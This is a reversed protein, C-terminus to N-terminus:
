WCGKLNERLKETDEQIALWKGDGFLSKSEAAVQRWVVWYMNRKLTVEKERKAAQQRLLDVEKRKEKAELWNKSSTNPIKKPSSSPTEGFGNVLEAGNEGRCVEVIRRWQDHGSMTNQDGIITLGQKARSIAVNLRSMDKLFGLRQNSRGLVLYVQLLSSILYLAAFVHYQFLDHQQQVTYRQFIRGGGSILKVIMSTTGTFLSGNFLALGEQFSPLRGNGTREGGVGCLSGVYDAETGQAADATIVRVPNRSPDLQFLRQAGGRFMHKAAVLAGDAKRSCDTEAEKWGLLDESDRRWLTNQILQVM